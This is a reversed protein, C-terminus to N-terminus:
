WILDFYFESGERSGNTVLRDRFEMCGIRDVNDSFFLLSFILDGSSMRGDPGLM